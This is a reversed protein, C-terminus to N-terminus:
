PKTQLCRARRQWRLVRRDDHTSRQDTSACRMSRRAHAQIRRKRGGGGGGGGVDVDEEEWDEEDDDYDTGKGEGGNEGQTTM